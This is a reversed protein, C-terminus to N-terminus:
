DRERVHRFGEGKSGPAPKRLVASTLGSAPSRVRRKTDAPLCFARLRPRIAYALAEPRGLDQRALLHLFSNVHKRAQALPPKRRARRGGLRLVAEKPSHEPIQSATWAKPELVALGCGPSLLVFGPERNGIDPRALASADRRPRAAKELLRNVAEDCASVFTECGAPLM